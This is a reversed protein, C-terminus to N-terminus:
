TEAGSNEGQRAQVERLKVVCLEANWAELHRMLGGHEYHYIM